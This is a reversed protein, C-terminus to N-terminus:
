LAQRIREVVNGIQEYVEYHAFRLITFGKEALAAERRADPDRSERHCPGDIEIVVRHELCAFDVVHGGIPCQRRFHCGLQRRRLRTWLRREAFTMNKRLAKARERMKDDM